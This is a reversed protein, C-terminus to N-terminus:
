SLGKRGRPRAFLHVKREGLDLYAPNLVAEWDFARVHNWIKEQSWSLDIKRYSELASRKYPSHAILNEKLQFELDIWRKVYKKLIEEGKEICLSDVDQSTADPSIPFAERHIIPGADLQESVMHFTVGFEPIENLIAFAPTASGRFEPLPAAHFNIIGHIPKNIYERKFLFGNGASFIMWLEEELLLNSPENFVLIGNDRGQRAIDENASKDFGSPYVALCIERNSHLPLLCNLSRMGIEGGAFLAINRKM